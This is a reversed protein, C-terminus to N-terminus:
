LFVWKIFILNCFKDGLIKNKQTGRAILWSFITFMM